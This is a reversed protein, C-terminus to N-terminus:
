HFTRMIYNLWKGESQHSIDTYCMILVSHLFSSVRHSSDATPLWQQGRIPRLTAVSAESQDSLMTHTRHDDYTRHGSEPRPRPGPIRGSAGLQSHDLTGDTGRM